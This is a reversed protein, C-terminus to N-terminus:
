DGKSTKIQLATKLADAMIEKSQYDRDYHQKSNHIIMEKQLEMQDRQQSAALQMQNRQVEIDQQRQKLQLDAQDKAAKRQQDAQKIALEQQQLQVVPDQAAQQAQQQAVQQQNQALVQQAAQALLPALQAEVEPDMPVDEGSEDKQPPLVMGLAQEIMVRYEFGLHENIHAQAAAAKQQAAPDKQMLQQLMPDQMASTHVTIHAKHDQYQFAKVPKGMLINQNETIPDTPKQDEEMPVLKQADKIGLVDLMQRHLLPMNYMQPATQALQLVAQYQVIKQAM